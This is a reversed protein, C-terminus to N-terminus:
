KIEDALIMDTYASDKRVRALFISYNYWHGNLIYSFYTRFYMQKIEETMREYQNLLLLHISCEIYTLFVTSSLVFYSYM